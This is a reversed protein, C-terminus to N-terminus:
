QSPVAAPLSRLFAVISAADRPSLVGDFHPMAPMVGRVMHWVREEVEGPAHKRFYADDFVLWQTAGRGGHCGVCYREYLEYGPSLRRVFTAVDNAETDSLPPDLAPGGDGRHRVREALAGDSLSSQFGPDGLDRLAGGPVESAHGYWGHCSACLGLYIRKGANASRWRVQPLQRLFRTLALTAPKREPLEEVGSRKLRFRRGRGIRRILDEDSNGAVVGSGVLDAAPEEFLKADPGDGRADLGHCRTCHEAFLVRGRAVDAEATLDANAVGCLALWLAVAAGRM